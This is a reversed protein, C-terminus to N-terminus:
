EVINEFMLRVNSNKMFNLLEEDKQARIEDIVPERFDAEKTPDKPLQRKARPEINLSKTFTMGIEMFSSSRGIKEWSDQGCPIIIPEMYDTNTVRIPKSVSNFGMSNLADRLIKNQTTMQMSYFILSSGILHAVSRLCRCIQKKVEPEFNQFLDYKSGIILIPIPFVDLTSLDNYKEGLRLAAVEMIASYNDKALSQIVDRLQTIASEITTWLDKPQSLDLVLLISTTSIDKGSRFPIEM